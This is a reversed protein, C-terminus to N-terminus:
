AAPRDLDRRRAVERERGVQREVRQRDGLPDLAAQADPQSVVAPRFNSRLDRM